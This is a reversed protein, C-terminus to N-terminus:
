GIKVLQITKLVGEEGMKAGELFGNARWRAAFLGDM